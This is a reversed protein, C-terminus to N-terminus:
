IFILLFGGVFLICIGIHSALKYIKMHKCNTPLQNRAAFLAGFFAYCLALVGVLILLIKLAIM